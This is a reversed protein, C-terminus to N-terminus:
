HHGVGTTNKILQKLPNYDEPVPVVGNDREYEEYSAILEAVLEPKKKALDHVEGQDSIIDYLEWNGNGKPPPNRSLKYKGRFVASSGALEYGISESSSHVESDKGTLVGWASKGSPPYITKGKYQSGPKEIGAMELITPYVDKVFLFTNTSQDAVVNGPYWAIFPVRLGGETSFTKYYSNPAASASAWGPGYDAYAGKQGMTSYDGKYDEIYTYDYNEQYWPRYAANNPLLNPDPGNDAMFIILTNDLEGIEELYSVLKGINHDMNDLMGAYTQMRRANFRKEEASLSDWDPILWDPVTTKDLVKDLVATEPVLGLKRQRELRSKRIDEWGKDYVGNYKDIFAKPAQHPYHVAQYGMWVMFPKDEKRDTEIYDIMKQTYFDSSFYNETPLSVEKDDEFYHVRDYMPAYPQEVWNDAGSEALAFSRKFGKAHPISEPTGGLHWKGTMYTNYGSDGLVTALSVVSNNLYGEYGSKGFQNDAMIEHMNGLGARHNDVGSILMTRTPSCTAGAHFNSFSMGQAALRDLNPTQIESGFSGIDGYGMDDAILIVINPREPGASDSTSKEGGFVSQTTLAAAFFLVSASIRSPPYDM